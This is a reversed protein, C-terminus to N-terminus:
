TYPVTTWGASPNQHILGAWKLHKSGHSDPGALDGPHSPPLFREEPFSICSPFIFTGRRISSISTSVSAMYRGLWALTNEGEARWLSLGVAAPKPWRRAEQHEAPSLTARFSTKLCSLGLCLPRCNLQAVEGFPVVCLLPSEGHAVSM